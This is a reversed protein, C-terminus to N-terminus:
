AHLELKKGIIGYFPVTPADPSKAGREWKARPIIPSPKAQHSYFDFNISAWITIFFLFRFGITKLYFYPNAKILPVWNIDLIIESTWVNDLWNSSDAIITYENAM